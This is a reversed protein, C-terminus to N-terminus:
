PRTRARARAILTNGSGLYRLSSFSLQKAMAIGRGNLDFAREPDLQLYAACDFGEGQDSITFEIDEGDRRLAIRGQRQCWPASALRGAIEEEWRCDQLLTSKQAYSIGLNGHEVANVLLEALGMACASADDCLGSLAAALGRVQELSRFFFEGQELLALTNRLDAGTQRLRERGQLDVVVSRVLARLAEVEYPKTLYYHAGALLGESVEQRTAAATQMIVPVAAWTPDAKARKLLSLGDLRPMIRDIVLLDYTTSQMMAWAEDGDSAQDVRYGDEQLCASIITLNIAEDDVALVKIM